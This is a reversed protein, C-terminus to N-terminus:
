ASISKTKLVFSEEFKTRGPHKYILYDRQMHGKRYEKALNKKSHQKNRKFQPCCCKEHRCCVASHDFTIIELFLHWAMTHVFWYNMHWMIVLTKRTLIGLCMESKSTLGFGKPWSSQWIKVLEVSAYIMKNSHRLSWQWIFITGRFVLSDLLLKLKGCM